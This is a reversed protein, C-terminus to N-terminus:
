TTLGLKVKVRRLDKDNSLEYKAEPIPDVRGYANTFIRYEESGLGLDNLAKKLMPIRTNAGWYYGLSCVCSNGNETSVIDFTGYNPFHYHSTVIVKIKNGM